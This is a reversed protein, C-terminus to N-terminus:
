LLNCRDRWHEESACESCLPTPVAANLIRSSRRVASSSSASSSSRYELKGSRYNALLRMEYSIGALPGYKVKDILFDEPIICKERILKAVKMLAESPVEKSPFHVYRHLESQVYTVEEIDEKGDHEGDKKTEVKTAKTLPRKSLSSQNRGKKIEVSGKAGKTAKGSSRPPTVLHGHLTPTSM